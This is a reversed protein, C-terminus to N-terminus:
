EVGVERGGIGSGHVSGGKGRHGAKGAESLLVAAGGRGSALLPRRAQGGPPQTGVPFPSMPDSGVNV